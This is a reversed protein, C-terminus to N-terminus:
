RQEMDSCVANSVALNETQKVHYERGLAALLEEELAGQCTATPPSAQTMHRTSLRCDLQQAGQWSRDPWLRGM